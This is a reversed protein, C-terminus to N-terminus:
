TERSVKDGQHRSIHLADVLSADPSTCPSFFPFINPSIVNVTSMEEHKLLNGNTGMLLFVGNCGAPENKLRDNSYFLSAVNSSELSESERTMLTMSALQYAQKTTIRWSRDDRQLIRSFFLNFSSTESCAPPFDPSLAAFAAESKRERCGDLKEKRRESRLYGEAGEEESIM